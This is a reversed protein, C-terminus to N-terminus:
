GQVLRGGVAQVPERFPRLVQGEVVRHVVRGSDPVHQIAVGEAGDISHAELDICFHRRAAIDIKSDIAAVQTKDIRPGPAEGDRNVSAGINKLESHGVTSRRSQQVREHM